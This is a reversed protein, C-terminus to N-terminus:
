IIPERFDYSVFLGSQWRHRLAGRVEFYKGNRFVVFAMDPDDTMERVIQFQWYNHVSVGDVAIIIDGDALGAALGHHAAHTIRVGDSPPSDPLKGALRELGNLFVKAVLPKSVAEFKKLGAATRMRRLYFTTLEVSREYRTSATQLLAEAADFKEMRELLAAKTVLGTYSYVEAVEDALKTAQEVRGNDYDYLVLWRVQNSVRVRDRAHEAFYRFQAAAESERDHDLLYEAIRDCDDAVMACMRRGIPGYRELDDGAAAALRVNVTRDYEALPGVERELRDLAPKAGFRIRMLELLPERLFPAAARLEDLLRPQALLSHGVGFIRHKADYATGNPILSEFWTSSHPVGYPVESNGWREMLLTWNAATILEPHAEILVYGDAMAVTYQAREFAYGRRVLPYLPSRGFTRDFVGVLDRAKESKLMHDYVYVIAVLKRALHRQVFARWLPWDIVRYPGDAPPESMSAPGDNVADLLAEADDRHSVSGPWVVAAEALEEAIASPALQQGTTVSSGSETLIRSWDAAAEPHSEELFDLARAEGVRDYLARVYATRELLTAREPHDLGRWDGTIRLTLARVWAGVAGDRDSTSWRALRDLADRQRGLLVLVVVDAAIANRGTGDSGLARAMALHATMRSLAPRTDSFAGAAERLAFAGLLLAADEHAAASLPDAVVRRSIETNSGELVEVRPTTLAGLLETSGKTAHRPSAILSRAIEVYAAPDWVHAGPAAPRPAAQAADVGPMRHLEAVIERAVWEAETHPTAGAAVAARVASPNLVVVATVLVRFVSSIPM